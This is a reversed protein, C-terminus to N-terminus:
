PLPLRRPNADYITLTGTESPAPANEPRVYIGTNEASAARPSTYLVTTGDRSWSPQSDYSHHDTIARLGSGTASVAPSTFVIRDRGADPLDTIINGCSAALGNLALVACWAVSLDLVRLRDLTSM